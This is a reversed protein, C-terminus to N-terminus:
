ASYRRLYRTECWGLCRRQCEALVAARVLVLAGYVEIAALVLGLGDLVARRRPVGHVGLHHRRVELALSGVRVHLLM